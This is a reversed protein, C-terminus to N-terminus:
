GDATGLRVWEADGTHDVGAPFVFVFRPAPSTPPTLLRAQWADGCEPCTWDQPLDDTLVRDRPPECDHHEM